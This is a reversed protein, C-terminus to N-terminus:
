LSKLLKDYQSIIIHEDFERLMKLRGAKGMLALENQSKNLIKICCEYLSLVDKPKCLFGTVGNDVTNKCGVSDTTIIPCELAAAEMLTRPIGERYYSPLVICDAKEIIPRVDKCHGLYEITGEKEWTDIENESIAGPTDVGSFGLVQFVVNNFDKKIKRAVSVFERIGKDALLRGVFLFIFPKREKPFTSQPAFYSLDIGESNLLFAKEESIIKKELFTNMDDSNLFGVKYTSRLAYRYLVLCIYSVLNKNIFAYGLGTTIAIYPIKLFSAAIAGYINPKVTYSIICKPNIKKFISYCSAILKIDTFPNTGQSDINMNCFLCGCEQLAISYNQDDPALVYCKMGEKIFHLLVGKRFNYMSWATNGFFVISNNNQQNM